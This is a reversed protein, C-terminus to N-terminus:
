DYQNGYQSGYIGPTSLNSFGIRASTKYGVGTTNLLNNDILASLRIKTASIKEIKCKTSGSVPKLIGNVNDLITSIMEIGKIGGQEFTEIRIVGYYNSINGVDGAVDELDFDAEILTPETELIANTRIGETNLGTYLNVSKTENYHNISGDWVTSEEFTNIYLNSSNKTNIIESDSNLKTEVSFRLRWYNFISDLRAWNQNKGDFRKTGDILDDPVDTNEIWYEWRPRLAYYFYFAKKTGIDETSDRVIKVFNKDVGTTMQFGRTTDVNFLQVGTTDLPFISTDIEYNECDFTSGNDANFGEIKFKITDISENKATDLYFLTKTLIEDEVTGLYNASGINTIGQAHNLVQITADGLVFTPPIESLTNFDVILSTRDSVNSALNSDALSVFFLYNWNSEDISDFYTNFDNNPQFQGSIYVTSGSNTISDFRMEMKAGSANGYGPFTFSSTSQKITSNLDNLLINEHNTKDNDSILSKDLPVTIFGLKYNSNINAGPQNLTIQFNTPADKLIKSVNVGTTTSYNVGIVSYDTENGNFNENFWGVAGFLRTESTDTEIIVNPNRLEPEFTIEFVDTLSDSDFLFSPAVNTEFDSLTDFLPIIHFDIEIKFKQTYGTKGLGVISANFVSHGSNFGVTEMPIVTTTDTPDLGSAIFQPTTGDVLSTLSASGVESNAILNYNLNVGEVNNNSFMILPTAVTTGDDFPFTGTPPFTGSVLTLRMRTPSLTTVVGTGIYTVAGTVTSWGILCGVFFGDELFNGSSRIFQNSGNSVITQSNSSQFFIEVEVDIELIIRDGVNGL